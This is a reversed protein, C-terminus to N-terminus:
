QPRIYVNGEFWIANTYLCERCVKNRDYIFMGESDFHGEEQEDNMNFPTFRIGEEIDIASADEQGLLM